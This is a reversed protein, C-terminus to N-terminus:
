PAPAPTEALCRAARQLRRHSGRPVELLRSSAFGSGDLVVEIDLPRRDVLGSLAEPPVTSLIHLRQAAAGTVPDARRTVDVVKSPGLAVQTGDRMALRVSRVPTWMPEGPLVRGPQLAMTTLWVPTGDALRGLAVEDFCPVSLCVSAARFTRGNSLRERTLANCPDGARAPLVLALLLCWM